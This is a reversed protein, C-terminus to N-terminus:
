TGEDPLPGYAPRWMLIRRNPDLKVGRVRGETKLEITQTRADLHVKRLVPPSYYHEIEVEIDLDYLEAQKQVLEIIVTKPSETWQAVVSERKGGTEPVDILANQVSWNMEIHPVGSRHLWQDFFGKLDMGSRESFYRELEDLSLNKGLTPLSRLIPFFFEDGIKERLMQLFYTGKPLSVRHIQWGEAQSVPVEDGQRMMAFYGRISGAPWYDPASVEIFDRMAAEGFLSEYMLAAGYNAFGESCLAGSPEACSFKNGWWAHGAEHAFLALGYEKEFYSSGAVIFGQESSAAFYDSSEDPVEAISFSDFPYDGFSTELTRFIEVLQTSQRAVTEENDILMYMGVDVDGVKVTSVTFPAITYSRALPTGVQWVQERIAGKVTNSLLKGNSIARMEAPMVFRTTGSSSLGEISVLTDDDSIPYPYWGTVWSAYHMKVWNERGESPRSFLQGQEKSFEYSFALEVVTGRNVPEAFEVFTFTSPRQSPNQEATVVRYAPLEDANRVEWELGAMSVDRNDLLLMPGSSADGALELTIEGSFRPMSQSVDVTLDLRTTAWVANNRADELSFKRTQQAHAAATILASLATIAMLLPFNSRRSQHYSIAVAQVTHNM